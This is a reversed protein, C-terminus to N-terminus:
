GPRVPVFLHLRLDGFDWLRAEELGRAVLPRAMFREYGEDPGLSTRREVVWLRHAALAEETLEIGEEWSGFRRVTGLPHDHGVSALPPPDDLASWAADFPMRAVGPVLVGDGPQAEADVTAVLDRWSTAAEDALRVQGIALLAVVGLPVLPVARLVPALTRVRRLRDQVECAALAQLVALAPIAGIAYRGVTSPRVASLAILAVVTGVGWVPAAVARFREVGPAARVARVLAVGAGVATVALLLAWVPVPLRGVSTGGHLQRLVGGVQEASLDDAHDGVRSAGHLYLAGATAVAAAVGPLAAVWTRRGVRAALLAGPQVLVALVGLGHTLPVLAGLAVHLAVWRRDHPDVVLHDLAWWSLVVGLVVMSFSRAEQAYRVLMWSLGLFLCAWTAVRRGWARAAVAGLTIVAGVAFVVSLLRIWWLSASVEVWGTLLVYYSAMTGSTNTLTQGLQGTAAISCAEDLWADRRRLGAVGLVALVAVGPAWVRALWRRRGEGEERVPGPGPASREGGVPVATAGM